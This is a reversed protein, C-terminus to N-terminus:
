FHASPIGAQQDVRRQWVRILRIEEKLNAIERRLDKCEECTTESLELFRDYYM